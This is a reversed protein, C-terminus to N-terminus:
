SLLMDLTPCWRSTEPTGNCMSQLSHHNYLPAQKLKKGNGKKATGIWNNQKM